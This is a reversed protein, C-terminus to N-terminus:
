SRCTASYAVERALILYRNNGVDAVLLSDGRLSVLGNPRTYEGPGTGQRGISSGARTKPNLLYVSREKSNMVVVRGDLLERLASVRSFASDFAFEPAGISRVVPQGSSTTSCLASAAALWLCGSRTRMTSDEARFTLHVIVSSVASQKAINCSAAGSIPEPALRLLDMAESVTPPM